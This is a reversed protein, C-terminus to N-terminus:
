VALRSTWDMFPCSSLASRRWAQWLQSLHLRRAGKGTKGMYSAKRGTQATRKWGELASQGPWFQIEAREGQMRSFLIESDQLDYHRSDEREPLVRRLVRLGTGSLDKQSDQRFEHKQVANFLVADEFIFINRTEAQRQAKCNKWM